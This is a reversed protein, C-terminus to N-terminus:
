APPNTPPTDAPKDAKKRQPAREVRSASQWARLREPKRQYKNHMAADLHQVVDACQGLLVGIAATNEVGGQAGSRNQKNVFHIADTDSRLDEVFDDPLDYSIFKARLAAKAAKQEPTDGGESIPKNNDELLKLLSDAHTLRASEAPNEPLLYPTAFGPEDLAIAQATRSINGFDENLADLLTEKTIHNPNQGAKAQNLDAILKDLRAIFGPVKSTPAFDAVNEKGFTQVRLAREYRRQDRDNM